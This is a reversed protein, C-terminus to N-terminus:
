IREVNRLHVLAKAVMNRLGTNRANIKLWELYGKDEAYIEAFTKGEHKGSGIVYQSARRYEEELSVEPVPAPKGDPLFATCSHREAISCRSYCAGNERLFACIRTEWQWVFTANCAHCTIDLTTPNNFVRHNWTAQCHPCRMVFREM